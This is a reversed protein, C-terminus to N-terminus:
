SEGEQLVTRRGIRGAQIAGRPRSESLRHRWDGEFRRRLNKRANSKSFSFSDLLEKRKGEPQNRSFDNSFEAFFENEIKIKM